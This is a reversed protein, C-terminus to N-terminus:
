LASRLNPLRDTLSHRRRPPRLMVVLGLVAAPLLSFDEPVGLRVAASTGVLAWAVPIVLVARPVPYACWALVGFTFILTPCPLGFTPVGPYRQGLQYALLPYGVIAFAILLAGVLTAAPTRPTALHLKRTWLGHWALLVAQLFFLGAFLYAAPTLKTFFVLHYALAMWSWLAVLGVVVLRSFHPVATALVIVLVAITVLVAQIPWVSLNYLRFVDFFQESSFPPMM